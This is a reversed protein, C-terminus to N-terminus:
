PRNTSGSPQNSESARGTGGDPHPTKDTATPVAPEVSPSETTTTNNDGAPPTATQAAPADTAEGWIEAGIWALLALTLGAILVILVPRGTRGQRAETGTETIKPDTM